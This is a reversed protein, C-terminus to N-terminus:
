LNGKWFIIHKELERLIVDLAIGTIGLIIIGVFMVSSNLYKSANIIMWGIGDTAAIMEASVLTTYAFGVGSRIGTFIEPLAAPLLVKIFIQKKSLGIMEASEIYKNSVNKIASVSALYIPALAALYLLVIKPSEGIGMWLILLSYYALPPIPRYFQIFSDIFDYFTPISGSALGLPIGTVIALILAIFLRSLTIMLHKWLPIGAYGHKCLLIFTLLVKQPSPCLVTNVWNLKTALYWLILLSIWALSTIIYKKKKNKKM